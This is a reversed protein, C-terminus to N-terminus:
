GNLNLEKLVIDLRNKPSVKPLEIVKYGLDQYVEILKNHILKMEELDERRENDTGYIDAWPPLAFVVPFYSHEKASQELSEVHINEKRLYALVDPVGRDYFNCVGEKVNNFQASQGKNVLHSFNLLDDWPVIKSGLELQEKIIQRSVERHCPYGLDKLLDLLTSKGTGPGGTIVVRRTKGM